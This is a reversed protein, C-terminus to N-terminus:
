GRKSHIKDCLEIEQKSIDLKELLHIKDYCFFGTNVILKEQEIDIIYITKDIRFYFITDGNKFKNEFSFNFLFLDTESLNILAKYYIYM